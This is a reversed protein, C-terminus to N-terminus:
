INATIAKKTRQNFNGSAYKNFYLQFYNKTKPHYNIRKRNTAERFIAAMENIGLIKILELVDDWDGYNLTHEVISEPNLNEPNKVYWVLTPRDKMFKSLKEQTKNKLKNNIKKM